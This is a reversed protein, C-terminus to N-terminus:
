FWYSVTAKLLYEEPKYHFSYNQQVVQLYTGTVDETTNAFRVYDAELGAHWNSTVSYLLGLGVVGGYLRADAPTDTYVMGDPNYAKYTTELKGTTAGLKVYGLLNPKFFRGVIADVEYRWPMKATLQNTTTTQDMYFSDTSTQNGSYYADAELAWYNEGDQNALGIFVNGAAMSKDNDFDHSGYVNDLWIGNMNTNLDLYQWAGGAGVYVHHSWDAQALAPCLLASM